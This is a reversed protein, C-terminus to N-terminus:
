ICKIFSLEEEVNVLDGEWHLSRRMIKSLYRIVWIIETYQNRMSVVLIANLTNFLFHPNVQSLLLNM